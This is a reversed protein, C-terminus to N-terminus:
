ETLTVVFTGQGAAQEGGALLVGATVAGGVVVAAGVWFWWKGFVSGGPAPVAIRLPAAVDGRSAIPLGSADLAEFYYEVLPPRVAEAPLTAVYGAGRLTADVRRFVDSTGQRYALVLRAVRRSPDELSATLTVATNREAQPPSRHAIT